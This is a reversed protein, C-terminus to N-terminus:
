VSLAVSLPGGGVAFAIMKQQIPVAHSQHLANAPNPIGTKDPDCDPGIGSIRVFPVCVRFFGGSPPKKLESLYRSARGSVYTVFREPCMPLVKPKKPLHR